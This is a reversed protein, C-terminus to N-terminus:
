RPEAALVQHAWIALMGFVVLMIVLATYNKTMITFATGVILALSGVSIEADLLKQKVTIDGPEAERMEALTPANNNWVTWLQFAAVGIVASAASLDQAM